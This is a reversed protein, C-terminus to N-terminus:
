PLAELEPEMRDLVREWSYHELVYSRGLAALRDGVDPSGAIARLHAVLETGDSFLLGGGSRRCHWAVVESGSSAVVPTGALWAEMVSRSFSEMRSPQVYACAAAFADDRDAESVFGLDIVRDGIEPPVEIAGVGITVLDLDLDPGPGTVAAAYAQLLADWGKDAERRGAFLAFPRRIGHRARFGEADYIAPPHVGAGTVLHRPSVPGLRHALEHEPDSLFWVSGPDAVVSRFVELRAYPEDHLCPIVVTKHAPVAQMGVATTWLLYPSFVFADFDAGHRVLHEFLGPARFALHLWSMQEDLTPTGGAVICDQARRAVGSLDCTTPFRWVVLGDEEAPGEPLVNDWTYHDVACTTIVEVDWGRAALGLAVERAVAESGGVVGAGFRPPVVAVRRGRAGGPGVQTVAV